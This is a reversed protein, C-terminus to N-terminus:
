GSYPVLFERVEKVKLPVKWNIIKEIKSKDPQIGERLIHHGLFHVQDRFLLSKKTSCFLKAERLRELVLRVHKEHEEESELYIIIDNLYVACFRTLMDGLVHELRKQQTAPANTLGMPMVVWKFLGWPTKVATKEIDDPDM